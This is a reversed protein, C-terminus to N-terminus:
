AGGTTKVLYNVTNPVAITSGGTQKFTVTGGEEVELIGDWVMLDTIDMTVPTDFPYVTNTMDTIVTPDNEDGAQYARVETNKTHWWKQGDYTITDYVIGASRLPYQELVASPINATQIATGDKASEVANVEATAFEQMNYQPNDSLFAEIDAIKQDDLSIPENGAGFWKTLDVLAFDSAFVTVDPFDLQYGANRISNSATFLWLYIGQELHANQDSNEYVKAGNSLLYVMTNRRNVTMTTKQKYRMLYKHNAPLPPDYNNNMWSLLSEDADVHTSKVSLLQNVVTSKGGIESIVAESLSGVPVTQQYSTETVTEQTYLKGVAAEELLHVRRTVEQLEAKTAKLALETKDAKEDDLNEVDQALGNVVQGVTGSEYTEGDDYSVDGATIDTPTPADVPTIVGDDGIGMFKGADSVSQQKDVKGNQLTSIEGSFANTIEELKRDVSPDKVVAMDGNTMPIYSFPYNM